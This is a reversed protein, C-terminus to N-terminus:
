AVIELGTRLGMIYNSLSLRREITWWSDDYELGGNDNTVVIFLRYHDENDIWVLTAEYCGGFNGEIHAAIEFTVRNRLDEDRKINLNFHTTNRRELAETVDRDGFAAYKNSIIVDISNFTYGYPLMSELHPTTKM